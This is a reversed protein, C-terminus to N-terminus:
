KNLQVNLFNNLGGECHAGVFDLNKSADYLFLSHHSICLVQKM